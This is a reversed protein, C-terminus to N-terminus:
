LVNKMEINYYYLKKKIIRIKINFFVLKLESFCSVIFVKILLYLGNEFM